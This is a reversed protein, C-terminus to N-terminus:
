FIFQKKCRKLITKRPQQEKKGERLIFNYLVWFDQLLFSILGLFTRTNFKTSTTWAYFNGSVRYGTEIGWRKRYASIIVSLIARDDGKINTTFLHHKDERNDIIVRIDKQYEKPKNEYYTYSIVTLKRPTKCVRQIKRNDILPMVYKAKIADLLKSTEM